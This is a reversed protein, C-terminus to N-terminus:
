FITNGTFSEEMHTLHSNLSQIPVVFVGKENNIIDAQVQYVSELM